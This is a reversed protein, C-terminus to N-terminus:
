RVPWWPPMLAQVRAAWSEADADDSLAWAVISGVLAGSVFAVAEERYAPVSVGPQEAFVELALEVRRQMLEDLAVRLGGSWQSALLARYLAREGAVHSLLEVMALRYPELAASVDLGGTGGADGEDAKGRPADVQESGDVRGPAIPGVTALADVERAIVDITFAEIGTAHGYFTTRHVGAEECLASVSIVDLAGDELLRFLAETLAVRTRLTRPDEAM